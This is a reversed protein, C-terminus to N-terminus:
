RSPASTIPSAPTSRRSSIPWRWTQTNRDRPLQQRLAHLTALPTRASEDASSSSTTASRGAAPWLGVVARATIWRESVIRELMTSPTTSLALAGDRRGGPRRPDEPVHGEAGLHPLVADLRHLPAIEALDYDDFVHLGLRRQCRPRVHELEAAPSERAAQELSVRRSAARGSARREAIERYEGLVQASLAARQEPDVMAARWASRARRTRCTSSRAATLLLPRDQDRHAAQQHHRRRDAAAAVAGRREMEAAVSCM